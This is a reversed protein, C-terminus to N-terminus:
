QEMAEASDILSKLRILAASFADAPTELDEEQEEEYTLTSMDELYEKMEEVVSLWNLESHIRM